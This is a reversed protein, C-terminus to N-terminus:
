LTVEMSLSLVTADLPTDAEITVQGDNSWGMLYFREHGTKPTPAASMDDSVTRLILSSGNVEIGLTSYLNVDVSSVRKPVNFTSGYPMEIEIPLTKITADYSFGIHVSNAKHPSIDLNGSGDVTFKGLDYANKRYDSDAVKGHSAVVHVEQNAWDTLGSFISTESASESSSEAMDLTFTDDLKELSHVTAENVTREIYLFIEDLITVISKVKGDTVWKSWSSIQEVRVGHYVALTGDSNVFFAYQEPRQKMGYLVTADIIGDSDILHNSALSIANATYGGNIEEWLFERVATGISQVFMTARDFIMPAVDGIGYPSQQRINFSTPSLPNDQSEPCYFEGQDTYVQLTGASIIHNITNVKDAAISAQISEDDLATGSDFNYFLGVKSSFLHSPLNKAGGFWLRQGHFAVSRAWGQAESMACETWDTTAQPSLTSVGTVTSEAGSDGGVLTPGGSSHFLAKKRNAVRVVSGSISVVEGEANGDTQTVIEGVEFVAAETANQVTIDQGEYLQQKVTGNVVTDSVYSDIQVQRGSIAVICDVHDTTWHGASLTLTISGTTASATITTNSAAFKYQPSYLPWGSAHTSFTWDDRTFTSAGTRTIVQMRFDEHTLIMVDGRQAFRIENLQATTWPCGTIQAQVTSGDAVDYVDLTTNGLAIIYTQDKNFVFPLLRKNAGIDSLKKTGWRRRLGGQVLQMWNEITEAGNNYMKTDPRGKMLPDLAGGSFNTQLTRVNAVSM